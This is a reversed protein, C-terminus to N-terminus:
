SRALCLCLGQVYDPSSGKRKLDSDSDSDSDSDTDTDMDTDADADADADSDTDSDSDTRTRRKGSVRLLGIHVASEAYHRGVLSVGM